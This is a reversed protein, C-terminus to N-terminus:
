GPQKKKRMKKIRDWMVYFGYAAFIILYPEIPIRYRVQPHFFSYGLAFSMITLILLSTKQWRSFSTIVGIFGLLLIPGFSVVSIFTMKWDTFENKTTVRDPYLKWFHFFESFYHSFFSRPDNTIIGLTNGVFGSFFNGNTDGKESATSNQKFAKNGIRHTLLKVPLGDEMLWLELRGISSRKLIYGNAKLSASDLMLAIGTRDMGPTDVETGWKIKVEHPDPAKVFIALYGRTTDESVNTLKEDATVLFPSALWNAGLDDRDFDDTIQGSEEIPSSNKEQPQHYLTFKEISNMFGGQLFIGAFRQFRDGQFTTTDSLSGDFEGNVFVDFHHGSDDSRIRVSLDNQMKSQAEALFWDASASVPTIRGFIKYNRISWPLITLVSVAIVIIASKLNIGARRNV